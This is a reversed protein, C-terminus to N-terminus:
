LCWGGSRWWQSHWWVIGGISTPAGANTMAPTGAASPTGAPTPAGATEPTGATPTVAGAAPTTGGENVTNSGAAGVAAPGAVGGPSATARVETECGLGALGIAALVTTRLGVFQSHHRFIKQLRRSRRIARRQMSAEGQVRISRVSLM